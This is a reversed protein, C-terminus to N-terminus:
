CSIDIGVNGPRRKNRETNQQSVATDRLDSSAVVRWVRDCEMATGVFPLLVQYQRLVMHSWLSHM